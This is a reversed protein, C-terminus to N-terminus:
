NESCAHIYLMLTLDTRIKDVNILSKLPLKFFFIFWIQETSQIYLISFFFCCYAVVFFFQFFASIMQNMYRILLKDAIQFATWCRSCRPNDSPDLM